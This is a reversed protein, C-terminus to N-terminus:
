AIKHRYLHRRGCNVVWIYAYSMIMVWYHVRIFKVEVGELCNTLMHIVGMADFDNTGQTRYEVRGETDLTM